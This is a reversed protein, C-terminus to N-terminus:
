GIWGHQAFACCGFVSALYSWVVTFFWHMSTEFRKGKWWAPRYTTWQFILRILWFVTLSWTGWRGAATPTLFVSPEILAPLGMGVLVLCLFLTHVHFVTANLESMRAAEGRWNLYRAIPIHLFALLILGTGAIRLLIPLLDIM